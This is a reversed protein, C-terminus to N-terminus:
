RELRFQIPIELLGYVRPLTGADTAGREAAQDLLRSGSSEVTHVDVAHGDDGVQFRIRTMGELGRRRAREPYVTAAQVRRRIEEIRQEPGPGVVIADVEDGSGSTPLLLALLLAVLATRRM